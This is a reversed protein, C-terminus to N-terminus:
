ASPGAMEAAVAQQMISEGGWAALMRGADLAGALRPHGFLVVLADPTWSLEARVAAVADDSLGPRGKWARIDAYVAIVRDGDHETEAGGESPASRHDVQPGAARLRDPLAARAPPPYPGGLDDDVDIVSVAEGRLTASGALPVLSRRALDLAWEADSRVGWGQGSRQVRERAASAAGAAADIRAVSEHVRGADLSGDGLAVGLAELVAAPDEPYLSADCGAAIARVAALAGPDAAAASGGGERAAADVVGQMMMADTVILGGFGLEGRLVEGLIVPSLTAPRGSPDLAPFSVHATMVSAVGASIGAAFTEMDARVVDGAATVEPLEAHSDTVTRGHGPFHKVCALAGEDQCGEVWARVHRAARGPRAGFSRTGIIPNRPEVDLDAVPGYVWDVGLALAERATLAGCRRTAELDDVHGVAALPPLRTAGDFQQGAGRELDAGILIPHASEGRLRTTLARVAGAEGGFIIFGGAGMRLGAAIGDEAPAFGAGDVWRIAPFLLRAAGGSM